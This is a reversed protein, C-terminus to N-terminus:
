RSPGDNCPARWRIFREAQRGRVSSRADTAHGADWRHHEVARSRTASAVAVVVDAKGVLGLMAIPKPLSAFAANSIGPAWSNRQELRDAVPARPDAAAHSM